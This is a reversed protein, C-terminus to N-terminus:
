ENSVWARTYLWRVLRFSESPSSFDRYGYFHKIEAAHDFHTRSTGYSSWGETDTMGLQKALYDVVVPPVDTPNTLFTGLFRVTGLQLAFGLRNIEGRRQAILKIDTDSFHFYRALQAESPDTTYRGYRQEQAKTLFEVPMIGGKFHLVQSDFCVFSEKSSLRSFFDQSKKMM